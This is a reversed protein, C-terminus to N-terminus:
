PVINWPTIGEEIEVKKTFHDQCAMRIRAATAPSDMRFPGTLGVESRAFSIADKIAFFVSMALALPPEGVAKSSYVARPNPAGRLLAVDFKAPIDAFGPIKYAGPGRSYLIGKPSYTLEEMTFLGYGQIFAGEVQGIDIAPNLSEGLDMVIDTRLVQHDGTLCDIEVESCAVGYTFYNYPKGSHTEWDYGVDPTKYFSTASLSVRDYYAANVWDQWSGKPDATRYPKLREKITQCAYMVAMGNLDSGTSAATPPGNPVKDTATESIYIIDEPIELVRSAVQVMKTHLGQGMETGGHTLLVSGDTYVMVLAGTQNIFSVTFSIGFMTPLICLGRKRWRHQRNFDNVEQRRQNYESRKLCENWCRKLTCHELVHNYHTTDGEEYLNKERIMAPDVGLIASMDMIANEVIFVAQPTGFGRFATNTPLNTKCSVGECKINPINYSNLSHLLARELVSCSLEITYGANNYVELQYALIKGEKSFGIKYKGHFPNRGGTAIMDEDRDLMCRVPRNLKIAAIAVPLAVIASRTEKGGFGGGLRKVRCVIHSAPMGVVESIFKQMEAPSQSACILELEHGGEKPIAISCNTELYFHEQGGIHVEGHLVHESTKMGADLDGYKLVRNTGPHFSEKAIADDISLIVPHIDEYVVNVLKAAQQATAQNIAVVAGIVQGVCNVTSAAFIEEDSIESGFHNRDPDVDSASFFAHVGKVALAPGPDVKVIKAHARTSFVLSLYLEDELHPLDDCYVAEGTAQKFASLHPIPRGIPDIKPQNPPVVQFYQSSQSQKGTFEQSASLIREPLCQKDSDNHDIKKYVDVFFKYFFSLTLAKRYAVMGGPADPSLPLDDALANCVDEVLLMDLKRGQIIRAAKKSEVITPAMGGFVLNAKKVIPITEKEIEINFAANVISIDDDRRRAQKYAKFFIGEHSYPIMISLMVEDPKVINKRYGTFFSGDMIVTRPRGDKSVLQIECNAAMFIPNLDSIPSGTMINGGVAAVNRIQKGAFWHLMDVIAKFIRTKHEPLEEMVMKLTSDIENLTVSSGFRIGTATHQIARLEKVKTPHILVPYLCNKFKVEVGIETNGVVIRAQPHKHKLLLLQELTTPRYWTVRPGKVTLFQHDLEPSIKLEPPFIPEQSSDYPKFKSTDFLIEVDGPALLEGSSSCCGGDGNAKCCWGNPDGKSCGNALGKCCGNTTSTGNVASLRSGCREWEETLTRFGEIIPRYGTCRCLNGQFAVEMDKMTPARGGGEVYCARLLSYMSMVIGPTCFGCQSGHAAAIRQQVAHLGTKTNGIGEVTTVAQGHVACVPTLCANASLHRDEEGKRVGTRSILSEGFEGADKLVYM